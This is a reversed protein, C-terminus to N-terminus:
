KASKDLPPMEPLPKSWWFGGLLVTSRLQGSYPNAYVVVSPAPDGETTCTPYVGVQSPMGKQWHGTLFDLWQAKLTEDM